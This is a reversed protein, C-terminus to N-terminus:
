GDLCRRNLKTQGTAAPCDSAAVWVLLFLPDARLGGTSPQLGGKEAEQAASSFLDAQSGVKM